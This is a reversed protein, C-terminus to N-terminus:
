QCPPYHGPSVASAMCGLDIRMTDGSTSNPTDNGLLIGRFRMALGRMTVFDLSTSKFADIKAAQAETLLGRPKICLAAAVISSV